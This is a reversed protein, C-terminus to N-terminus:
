CIHKLRDFTKESIPVIYFDDGNVPNDHHLINIYFGRGDLSYVKARYDSHPAINGIFDVGTEYPYLDRDVEFVKFGSRRSWGMNEAKVRAYSNKAFRKQVLLGFETMARIYEIEDACSDIELLPSKSIVM